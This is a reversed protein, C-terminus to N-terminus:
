NRPFCPQERILGRQSLTVIKTLDGKGRLKGANTLQPWPLTVVWTIM